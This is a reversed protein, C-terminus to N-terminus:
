LAGGIWRGVRTLYGQAQSRRDPAHEDGDSAALVLGVAAAFVPNDAGIASGTLPQPRGLRVSAALVTSAVGALGMLQSAGGTLVVQRGSSEAPLKEAVLQLLSEIRPRIFETLQARTTQFVGDEGESAVSYSFRDSVDSKANVITGYLSKIREAEALSTRLNQAIDFTLHHGGTALVGCNEFNGAGFTAWSTTGSGLDIVTVGLRREDETTVALASAYPAAVLGAASLYSREVVHVVNRLAGEDATVAHLDATLRAAAMGTPDAGSLEGDLRYALRNLHLLSRGDHEAYARAAAYLRAIDAEAVGAPGIEAHASFVRSSIRGCTIAVYIAELRVSAEREAQAVAARVASEAEASDSVAGAVLGRSRQHGLGLIRLSAGEVECILCAIKSTGIDVVGVIRKDGRIWKGAM